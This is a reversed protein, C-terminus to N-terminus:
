GLRGFQKALEDASIHLLTPRGHPCSHPMECRELGRILASMEQHSLAQGAKIAAQKCVRLIIAEEAAKETPPRDQAFDDLVVRLALAPDREALLAPVLRIAFTRAGFPEVEFGVARLSDLNEELLASEARSLEVTIGSLARQSLAEGSEREAMFREYLIREHAAHQDLLYVGAPGEAVIYTNGVQGLVRLMPLTRPRDPDYTWDEDSIASGGAEPVAEGAPPPAIEGTEADFDGSFIDVPEPPRELPRQGPTELPIDLERQSPGTGAERLAARRSRDDERPWDPRPAHLDSVSAHQRLTRRVANRVAAFVTGRDRFRVEAKTPHVNVDVDEPPVEVFVVAIPYRGKMLVGEYSAVIAQKLAQDEIPRGNVFLTMYRRTARDLNPASTVGYVTVGNEEHRAMELMDDFVEHGLSEAIVDVTEGSGTTRLSERGNMMLSFRVDPYATAYNAVVEEIHHRETRESKLFKRRAPTNYFLNEVTIVTGAPAGVPKVEGSEGGEIRLEGGVEEGRVRSTVTVRSVSAISALAEGRFGLTGIHNLDDATALKSTAHRIFALALEDPPIGAGNDSVRILAGIGRAEVDVATAGADLANEILEKVVSAPREIVEGAAIQAAVVDSLLRIPKRPPEPASM